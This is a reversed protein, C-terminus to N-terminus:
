ARSKWKINCGLSPKQDGNVPRDNLVADIAARLDQGTVPKGSNPRSDDLQGRYALKRDRGFLFFDPTCAANYARAVEQTEDDCLPFKFQLEEAMERLSEPSDDPYAAADNSSIAVIQLPTSAYDAGLRALEQQVHKVYPCHRCIFMVLLAKADEFSAPSITAGSVVDPLAFDPAPTGLPLMTSETRAMDELRVLLPRAATVIFYLPLLHPKVIRPPNGVPVYRDTDSKHQKRDVVCHNAALRPQDSNAQDDCGAEGKEAPHIEAAFALM